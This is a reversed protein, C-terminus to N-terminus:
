NANAERVTASGALSPLLNAATPLPNALLPQCHHCPEQTIVENCSSSNINESQFSLAARQFFTAKPALQERNEPEHPGQLFSACVHSPHILAQACGWGAMRPCKKSLSIMPWSSCTAPVRQFPAFHTSLYKPSMASLCILTLFHAFIIERRCRLGQGTWATPHLSGPYPSSGQVDLHAGWSGGREWWGGVSPARGAGLGPRFWVLGSLLGGRSM